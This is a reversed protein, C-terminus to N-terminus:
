LRHNYFHYQLHTGLYSFSFDFSFFGYKEFIFRLAIRQFIVVRFILVSMLIGHLLAHVAHFTDLYPTKEPGYKGANPSFVSLYPTDRRIWDSHPFICVLIVGVVSVKWATIPYNKYKQISVNFHISVNRLIHWFVPKRQSMWERILISSFIRDKHSYLLIHSDLFAANQCIRRM